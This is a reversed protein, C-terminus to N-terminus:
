ALHACTLLTIRTFTGRLTQVASFCYPAVFIM